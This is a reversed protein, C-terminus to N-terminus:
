KTGEKKAKNYAQKIKENGNKLTNFISSASIHSHKSLKRISLGQTHYLDFIGKDYWSFKKLESEVVSLKLEIDNDVDYDYELYECQVEDLDVKTIKNKVKNYNYIMNRIILYVFYGVLAKSNKSDLIRQPDPLEYLKIYMEQVIDEAYHGAGLKHAMSLWDNHRDTTYALELLNM